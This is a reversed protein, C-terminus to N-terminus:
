THKVQKEASILEFKQLDIVVHPISEMASLAFLSIPALELANVDVPSWAGLQASAVLALLAFIFLHFM